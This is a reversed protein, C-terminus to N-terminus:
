PSPSRPAAAAAGGPSGTPPSIARVPEERLRARLRVLDGTVETGSITVPGGLDRGLAGALASASQRTRAWLEVRGAAIRKLDVSSVAGMGRLVKLLAPVAAPEAIDADVVVTRLDGGTGAAAGAPMARPIAVAAARAFCDARAADERGAFSRHSVSEDAIAVGSGATVVRLGLTCSVADLGPGRVKGEVAATGSVMAVSGAGIRLATESARGPNASADAAAVQEVRAGATSFASAAAAAAEPPGAGVLVVKAAGPSPTGTGAGPSASVGGGAAREFARRLASEDVEADIRVSYLNGPLEGEQLTRYRRVYSRARGLIQPSLKPQAARVEPAIVAQLAQDVAQKLAETLARERASVSNGGVIAVEAAGIRGVPLAGGPAADSGPPVAGPASPASGPASGPPSGPAAPQARAQTAVGAVASLAGALAAVVLFRPRLLLLLLRLRPMSRSTM